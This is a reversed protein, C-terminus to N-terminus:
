LGKIWNGYVIKAVENLKRCDQNFNEKIQKRM